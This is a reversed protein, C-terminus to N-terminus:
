KIKLEISKASQRKNIKINLLGDEYTVSSAKADAKKPLLLNKSYERREQKAGIKLINNDVTVSIDEKKFGALNLDVEYHDEHEDWYAVRPEYSPLVYFDDLLRNM